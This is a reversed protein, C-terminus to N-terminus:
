TQDVVNKLFMFYIGALVYCKKVIPAALLFM